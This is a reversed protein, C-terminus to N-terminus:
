QGAGPVWSQTDHDPHQHNVIAAGKRREVLPRTEASRTPLGALGDTYSLKDRPNVQHSPPALEPDDLAGIALEISGDDEYSDFALPTGCHSCFGRRAMDSSAFWAPQGRTWTVGQATVFAGFIGGMAKQCMRCHCIGAGELEAARFRVAGCQCGGTVGGSPQPM